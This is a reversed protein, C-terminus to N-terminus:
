LSFDGQNMLSLPTENGQDVPVVGATVLSFDHRLQLVRLCLLLGGVPGGVPGGAGAAGGRIFLYYILHGSDM